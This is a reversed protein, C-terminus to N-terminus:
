YKVVLPSKEIDIDRLIKTSQVVKSKYWFYFFVMSIVTGVVFGITTGIFAKILNSKLDNSNPTVLGIINGVFTGIFAPIFFLIMQPINIEVSVM